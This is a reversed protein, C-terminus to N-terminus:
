VGIMRDGITQTPSYDASLMAKPQEIQTFHEFKQFSFHKILAVIEVPINFRQNVTELYIKQRSLQFLRYLYLTGIQTAAIQKLVRYENDDQNTVLDYRQEDDLQKYTFLFSVGTKM